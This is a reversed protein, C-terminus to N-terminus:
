SDQRGSATTSLHTFYLILLKSNNLSTDKKINEIIFEEGITLHGDGNNREYSPCKISGAEKGATRKKLRKLKNLTSLPAILERYNEVKSVTKPSL